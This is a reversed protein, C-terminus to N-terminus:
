DQARTASSTLWDQLERHRFQINIGSMRMLGAAVCWDLFRAPRVPLWDRRAASRVGLAYRLWVYGRSGYFLGVGLGLLLSSTGFPWSWEGRSGFLLLVVVLALILAITALASNICQRLLVTPSPATEVGVRLGDMLFRIVVQGVAMASVLLIVDTLGLGAWWLALGFFLGIGTGELLGIWSARIIRRRGLRTGLGSLDMRNLPADESFASVASFVLGAVLITVMVPLVLWRLIGSANWWSTSFYLISPLYVPIALLPPTIRVYPRNSIRWLDPMHIDTLSKGRSVADRKQHEAISALWRQVRDPTWDNMAAMEHQATVTPILSKLLHDRAHQPSMSLLEDPTSDPQHYATIALFLQWPNQLVSLLRQHNPLADVVPQWRAPIRRTYGGFRDFIYAIVDAATLPQLTVHRAEALIPSKLQVNASTTAIAEYELRRCALVVPRSRDHNLAKIVAAARPRAVRGPGASDPTPDMEDLGDLVPLIHGGSLLAHAAGAPTQYHEILRDVVWADLRTLLEQGTAEHSDPLDLTPLSLMVPIVPRSSSLDDDLTPLTDILDRVLHSLLMSKGSGPNGLVVLRGRTGTRYFKQVNEISGARGGHVAQWRVLLEVIAAGTTMRDPDDFRVYAPHVDWDV